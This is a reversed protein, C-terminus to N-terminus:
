WSLFVATSHITGDPMLTNLINCGFLQKPLILASSLDANSFDAAEVEIERLDTMIFLTGRCNTQYFKANATAKSRVLANRLIANTFDANNLISAIFSAGTLEAATFDAGTLDAGDFNANRLDANRFNANKLSQGRFSKGLSTQHNYYAPGPATMHFISIPIALDTTSQVAM